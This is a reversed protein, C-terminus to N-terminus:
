GDARQQFYLIFFKNGRIYEILMVKSHYVNNGSTLPPNHKNIQDSHKQFIFLMVDNGENKLQLAMMSWRIVCSLVVNLSRM